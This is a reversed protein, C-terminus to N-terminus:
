FNKPFVAYINQLSPGIRFKRRFGCTQTTDPEGFILALTVVPSANQDKQIIWISKPWYRWNPAHLQGSIAYSALVLHYRRNPLVAM